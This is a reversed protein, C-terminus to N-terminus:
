ADTRDKIDAAAEPCKYSHPDGAEAGCDFCVSSWDANADPITRTDTRDTPSDIHRLEESTMGGDPTRRYFYVHGDTTLIGTLLRGNTLDYYLILSNENGDRDIRIRTIGPSSLRDPIWDSGVKELAESWTPATNRNVM